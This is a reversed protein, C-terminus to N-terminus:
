GRQPTAALAVLFRDMAASLDAAEQAFDGRPPPCTFSPAKMRGKPWDTFWRFFVLYLLSRLGPVAPVTSRVDVEGLSMEFTFTLHRLAHAADLKGWLRPTAETIRQLRETFFTRTTADFDYTAL